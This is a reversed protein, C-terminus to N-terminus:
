RRVTATRPRRFNPERKEFFAAVGEKLWPGKASTANRRRERELQPELDPLYSLNLLEKTLRFSEPPQDALRRAAQWAAEVVKDAAVIGDVLGVRLAEDAKVTEDRLIIRQAIGFGVLRPLFYTAGGDPVIGLKSYAPKFSATPAAIRLDCALALGLGGGATPGNIAAVVPKTAKRIGAIIPHLHETLDEFLKQPNRELAGRMATVDGGACFAKGAGTLVLAEVDNRRVTPEFADRIAKIFTPDFANYKDPRN